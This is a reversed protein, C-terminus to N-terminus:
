FSLFHLLLAAAAVTFAFSICIYRKCICWYKFYCVHQLRRCRLVSRHRLARPRREGSRWRASRIRGHLDHSPLEGYEFCYVFWLFLLLLLLLSCNADIKKWHFVLRKPASSPLIVGLASLFAVYPSKCIQHALKRSTNLYPQAYCLPKDVDSSTVENNFRFAFGSAIM